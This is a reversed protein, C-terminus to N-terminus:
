DNLASIQLGRWEIERLHFLARNQSMRAAENLDPLNPSQSAARTAVEFATDEAFSPVITEPKTQM